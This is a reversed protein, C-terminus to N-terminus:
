AKKLPYKYSGFLNLAMKMKKQSCFIKFVNNFCIKLFIHLMILKKKIIVVLINIIRNTMFLPLYPATKRGKNLYSFINKHLNLWLFLNIERNFTLIQYDGSFLFWSVVRIILNKFHLIFLSLYIKLSFTNKFNIYFFTHLFPRWQLCNRCAILCKINQIMNDYYFINKLAIVLVNKRTNM